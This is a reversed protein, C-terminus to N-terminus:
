YVGTLAPWRGPVTCPAPTSALPRGLGQAHVVHWLRRSSPRDLNLSSRSGSLPRRPCEGWSAEWVSKGKVSSFGHEGGGQGNRRCGRESGGGVPGRYKSRGAQVVRHGSTHLCRLHLMKPVKGQGEEAQLFGRDSETAHGRKREDSYIADDM